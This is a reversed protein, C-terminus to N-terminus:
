HLLEEEFTKRVQRVREATFPSELGAEELFALFSGEQTALSEEFRKKGKGKEEKELQYLQLAADNSVVYSIVYMPAAFFHHVLVYERSDSDWIDLGFAEMTKSYLGRVAEVTLDDGELMYVQQEFSAYAAQEVYTCLGDRLKNKAFVPLGKWHDHGYSLSLYELGQSFVEEVDVGLQNGWSVYDNCFHGFEHTFTLKDRSTQSPNILIFPENYSYLYVQYSAEYKNASAKIDYLGCTKMLTFAEEVVGGMAMATDEVYSLAQKETCGSELTLDLYVAPLYLPVLEQQILQTYEMAQQPTYDRQHNYDYSFSAYDPYGAYAAIKQRQAVLQIYLEELVLGTTSFWADDYSYGDQLLEYYESLLVDEQRMLAEMTEDMLSEGQFDDFFGEGFWDERAELEERFACDALAYLLRDYDAGVGTSEELCYNYEKQWYIDRTDMCFHIYALYYNTIFDLYAGYYVNFADMIQQAATATELTTEVAELKQELAGIDPRTYVMDKFAVSAAGQPLLMDCGTLTLILALILAMLRKKM